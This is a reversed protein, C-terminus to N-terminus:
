AKYVSKRISYWLCNSWCNSHSVGGRGRPKFCSSTPQTSLCNHIIDIREPIHPALPQCDQYDGPANHRHQPAQQPRSLSIQNLTYDQAEHFSTGKWTLVRKRRIRWHALGGPLQM